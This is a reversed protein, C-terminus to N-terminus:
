KRGNLNPTQRIPPWNPLNQKRRILVSNDQYNQWKWIKNETNKLVNFFSERGPILVGFDLVGLVLVGFYLVALVLVWFSDQIQVRLGVWVPKKLAAWVIIFSPVTIGQRFFIWFFIHIVHFVAQTRNVDANKWRYEAFKAIHFFVSISQM